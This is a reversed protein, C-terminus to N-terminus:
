SRLFWFKIYKKKYRKGVIVIDLSSEPVLTL